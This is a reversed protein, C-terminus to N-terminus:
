LILMDGKLIISLTIIHSTSVNIKIEYENESNKWDALEREVDFFSMKPSNMTIAMAVEHTPDVWVALLVYSPLNLAGNKKTQNLVLQIINTYGIVTGKYKM